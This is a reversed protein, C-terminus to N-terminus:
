VCVCVCERERECVCVCVCVRKCVHVCVCVSERERVCVCVCVSMDPPFKVIGKSETESKFVRRIVFLRSFGWVNRQNELDPTPAPIGTKRSQTERCPTLAENIKQVFRYKHGQLVFGTKFCCESSKAYSLM